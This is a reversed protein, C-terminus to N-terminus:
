IMGKVIQIIKDMGVDVTDKGWSIRITSSAIEDSLGMAKLVYSLKYDKSTCASGNSLSCIPRLAIMLAESNVSPFAISLTTDMCYKQDGNIVYNLKSAKLLKVATEKLKKYHEQWRDHNLIAIEAAKGFGAILAVPLTGPRFGNEQGGGFSHQIIPIKKYNKKKSVLIGIGQPGYMKHATASLMDYQVEQLEKILKGFSQAADIHFYINHKRCYEGVEKIPQIIGTENNVHQMSILLTKDTIKAIIDAANAIGSITPSVYDAIFGEKELKKIPELTAKHEIATTIIHTKNNKKGWEALGLIVTNSSETAGSTFYIESPEIALVEAIQKRANEVIERAEVGHLHTRSDANGFHDKYVETMYKLVEADIPTSANYDLYNIM